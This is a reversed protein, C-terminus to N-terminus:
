LLPNPLQDKKNMFKHMLEINSDIDEHFIHRMFEGRWILFLFNHISNVQQSGRIRLSSFPLGRNYIKTFM